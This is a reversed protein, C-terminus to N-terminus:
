NEVCIEWNAYNISQSTLIPLRFPAEFGNTLRFKPLFNPNTSRFISKFFNQIAPNHLKYQQIALVFMQRLCESLQDANYSPQMAM